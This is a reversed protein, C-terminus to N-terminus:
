GLDTRLFAQAFDWDRVATRRAIGLAAGAQELTLGAFYRLEVLQAARADAAALRQLAADLGIAQEASEIALREDGGTLTIRLWGGGAHQSLRQRARDALLHRMARAAYTFFQAPHAFHLDGRASVRLYLEHVLSTTDLTGGHEHASLRKGAMAKLRDYVAAFLADVSGADVFGTASSNANHM